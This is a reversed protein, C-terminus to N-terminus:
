RPCGAGGTGTWSYTIDPILINDVDLQVAAGACAVTTNFSGVPDTKAQPLPISVPLLIIDDVITGLTKNGHLSNYLEIGITATTPTFKFSGIQPYINSTTFANIPSTIVSTGGTIVVDVAVTAPTVNSNRRAYRFSLAYEIGPIVTVVQRLSAQSDIEATMNGGNSNGFYSNEPYTEVYSGFTTAEDWNAAKDFGTTANAFSGNTVANSVCNAIIVSDSNTGCSNTVTWSLLYSGAVAPTFIATPSSVSSIQSLSTNPGSVISWAGTGTAALTFASNSGVQDPGAYASVQIVTLSQQASKTGGCGGTITYVINCTGAGIATVLGSSDVTAVATDSSSWAGTGGSLVVTNASYTATSNLCLPTTGSVSAISANPSVTITGSITAGTCAGTTSITYTGAATPTGSITVTKNTTNVLSSLGSPLNTVTVNTASGGYTYVTNIIASGSCVTPSQTGTTLAITSLANVTITGSSKLISTALWSGIAVPLAPAQIIVSTVTFGKFTLKPRVCHSSTGPGAVM